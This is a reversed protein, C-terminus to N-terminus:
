AVRLATVAAMLAAMDGLRSGLQAPVVRCAAAARPLAEERLAARAPELLLDGLLVGLTGVVIVDPNFLDVLVALGRGFWRGSEAVVAQAALDGDLAKRVLDRTTLGAPWSGPQRMHALRVLGSGSCYGEWSGAKGYELPGDEAIRMHGVEGAMDSSGHFIQRNLILGAGLGTGMTLFIMNRSGQGAGFTFEALAGANGDHEVYVPLHFAEELRQKLPAEGWAALHPPAYLIGREIDLPGGVSVSVAQVSGLGQAQGAALLDQAAACIKELAPQFPEAAPTPIEVRRLIRGTTDGLILATKTGGVDFGLLLAAKHTLDPMM